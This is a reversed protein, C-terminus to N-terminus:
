SRLEYRADASAAGLLIVFRGRHRLHTMFGASRRTVDGLCTLPFNEVVSGSSPELPFHAEPRQHGRSRLAQTGLTGRSRSEGSEGRMRWKRVSNQLGRPSETHDVYSRLTPPEPHLDRGGSKEREGFHECKRFHKHGGLSRWLSGRTVEVTVGPHGGCHGGPSRWLSGRTVEM